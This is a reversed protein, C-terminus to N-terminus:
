GKNIDTLVKTINKYSKRRDYIFLLLTILLGCITCIVAYGFGYPRYVLRIEHKGSSVPVAMFGYDVKEVVTEEGDVYAKFGKDYPISFFVLNARGNEANMRVIIPTAREEFFRRPPM